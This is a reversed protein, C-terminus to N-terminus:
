NGREEEVALRLRQAVHLCGVKIPLGVELDALAQWLCGVKQLRAVEHVQWALHLTLGGVAEEVLEGAVKLLGASRVYGQGKVM